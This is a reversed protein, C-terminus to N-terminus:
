GGGRDRPRTADEREHMRMAREDCLFRCLPRASFAKRNEKRLFLASFRPTSHPAPLTGPQNIDYTVRPASITNRKINGSHSSRLEKRRPSISARTRESVGKASSPFLYFSLFSFIFLSPPPPPPPPSSSHSPTPSIPFFTSYSHFVSYRTAPRNGTARHRGRTIDYPHSTNDAQKRQKFPPRMTESQM